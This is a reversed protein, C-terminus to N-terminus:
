YNCTVNATWFDTPDRSATVLIRMCTLFFAHHRQPQSTLHAAHAKTDAIIHPREISIYTLYAYSYEHLDRRRFSTPSIQTNIRSSRGCGNWDDVEV